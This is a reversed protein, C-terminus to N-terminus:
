EVKPQLLNFVKYITKKCPSTKQTTRVNKTEVHDKWEDNSINSIYFPYEKKGIQLIHYQKRCDAKYKLEKKKRQKRNEM